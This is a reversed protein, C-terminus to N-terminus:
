TRPATPRRSSRRSSAPSAPRTMPATSLSGPGIACRGITSSSAPLATVRYTDVVRQVAGDRDGAPPTLLLALAADSPGGVSPEGTMSMISTLTRAREPTQLAVLQAIMAAMSAGVLHVSDLSLADLLGVTDRALDALGYTVSSHDSGLVAM